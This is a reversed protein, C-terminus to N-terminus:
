GDPSGWKAMNRSTFDSEKPPPGWGSYGYTLADIMDTIHSATARVAGLADGYNQYIYEKLAAAFQSKGEKIGDAFAEELGKEGGGTQSVCVAPAALPTQSDLMIEIKLM